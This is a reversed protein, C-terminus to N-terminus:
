QSYSAQKSHRHLYFGLSLLLIFAITLPTCTSRSPLIFILLGALSAGLSEYDDRAPVAKAGAPGANQRGQAPAHRGLKPRQAKSGEARMGLGSEHMYSFLTYVEEGLQGGVGGEGDSTM